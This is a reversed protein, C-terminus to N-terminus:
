SDTRYTPTVMTTFVKVTVANGRDSPQLHTTFSVKGTQDVRMTVDGTLGSDSLPSIYEVHMIAFLTDGPTITSVLSIKTDSQYFDTLCIARRTADNGGTHDSIFKLQGDYSKSIHFSKSVKKIVAIQNKFSAFSMKFQLPYDSDDREVPVASTAALVHMDYRSYKDPEPDHICVAMKSRNEGGDIIFMVEDHKASTSEFPIELADRKFCVQVPEACYYHTMCNGDITVYINSREHFDVASIRMYTPEFQINVDEVHMKKLLNLIQKFVKPVNYVLEVVSGEARAKTAVGGVVMMPITTPNKPPRGPKKKIPTQLPESM